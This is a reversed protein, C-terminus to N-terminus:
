ADVHSLCRVQIKARDRKLALVLDALKRLDEGSTATDEKHPSDAESDSLVLESDWVFGAKNAKSLAARMWTERRKAAELEAEKQKLMETMM